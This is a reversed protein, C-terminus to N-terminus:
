SRFLYVGFGCYFVSVFIQTYTGLDVPPDVLVYCIERGFPMALFATPRSPLRFIYRNYVDGSTSVSYASLRPLEGPIHVTIWSVPTVASDAPMIRCALEISLTKAPTDLLSYEISVM